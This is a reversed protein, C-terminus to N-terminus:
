VLAAIILACPSSSMHGLTYLCGSTGGGEIKSMENENLEVLNQTKFNLKARQTKM